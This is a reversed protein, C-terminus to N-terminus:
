KILSYLEQKDEKTLRNIFSTGDKTKMWKKAKNKWHETGGALAMAIVLPTGEAPTWLKM